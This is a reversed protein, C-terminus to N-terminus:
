PAPDQKRDRDQAQGHPQAQLLSIPDRLLPSAIERRTSALRVTGRPGQRSSRANHAAIYGTYIGDQHRHRNRSPECKGADTSVEMPPGCRHGGKSVGAPGFRVTDAYSLRAQRHNGMRASPADKCIATLRAIPNVSAWFCGNRIRGSGVKPCAYKCPNQCASSSPERVPQSKKAVATTTITPSLQVTTLLDIDTAAARSKYIKATPHRHLARPLSSHFYNTVIQPPDSSVKSSLTLNVTTLLDLHGSQNARSTDARNQNKKEM